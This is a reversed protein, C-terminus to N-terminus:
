FASRSHLPCTRFAAVHGPLWKLRRPPSPPSATPLSPPSPFSRHANDSTGMERPGLFALPDRVPCRWWQVRGVGVYVYDVLYGGLVVRVLVGVWRGQEGRRGEERQVIHMPSSSLFSSM